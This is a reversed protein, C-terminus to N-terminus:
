AATLHQEIEHVPMKVLDKDIEDRLAQRVHKSYAQRLLGLARPPAVVVLSKFKGAVAAADLREMLNKLFAQESQDHKDTTEMAGRQGGGGKLTGGPADATVHAALEEQEYVNRTQLNPFRDDGVNELVLAKAGDCVLIWDGQAIKLKAM